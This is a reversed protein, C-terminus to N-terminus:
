DTIQPGDSFQGGAELSAVWRIVGISADKRHSLEILQGAQLPEESILRFGSQSLNVIQAVVSLEATVQVSSSINVRIRPERIPFKCRSVRKPM